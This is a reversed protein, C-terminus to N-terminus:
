EVHLVTEQGANWDENRQHLNIMKGGKRRLVESDDHVYLGCEAEKETKEGRVNRILNGM